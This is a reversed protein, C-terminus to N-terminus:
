VHADTPGLVLMTTDAEHKIKDFDRHSMGRRVSLVLALILALFGIQLHTARAFFAAFVPMAYLFVLAIKEERTAGRSEMDSALIALSTALLAFEYDFLYPLTLLSAVVLVAFALRTAGTQRWVVAVTAAAALTTVAQAGYAIANPLNLMRFFIYASPIKSWRLSGDELIQRVLATNKFFVIWLDIGFVLTAIFCFLLATAGAAFFARWQRGALLAVPVLLALQPKFALFGLFAGAVLPRKDIALAAGAFLAASILSNQGHSVAIFVGPFGLLLFLSDGQGVGRLKVLPRLALAYAVLSAGVFVFWAVGYRMLALPAVVLQFTPPYHWLFVNDNGAVALREAEFIAHMNFVSAAHGDLTLRSAGWFTIFDYGLPRGLIDIAGKASLVLVIGALVYGLVAMRPYVRMRGLQFLPQSATNTESQPEYAPTANLTM